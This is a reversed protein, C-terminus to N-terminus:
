PAMLECVRTLEKPDSSVLAPPLDAAFADCSGAVADAANDSPAPRMGDLEERAEAMGEKHQAGDGTLAGMCKKSTPPCETAQEKAEAMDQKAQAQDKEVQEQRGEVEDRDKSGAPCQEPKDAPCESDSPSPEPAQAAVSAGVPSGAVAPASVAACALGTGAALAM